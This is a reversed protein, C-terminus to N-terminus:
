SSLRRSEIWYRHIITSFFHFIHIGIIAIVSENSLITNVLIGGIKKYKFDIIGYIDNPWKIFVPFKESKFICKIAKVICIAIFHQLLILNSSELGFSIKMSIQLNESFSRWGNSGRGKGKVQNDAIAISWDTLLHKLKENFKLLFTQTSDITQAYFINPFCKLKKFLDLSNFTNIFTEYNFSNTEIPSVKQLHKEQSISDIIYGDFSYQYKEKTENLQHGYLNINFSESSEIPNLDFRLSELIKQINIKTKNEQEKIIVFFKGKGHPIILHDKQNSEMIYNDLNLNVLQFITLFETLQLSNEILLILFGGIYFVYFALNQRLKRDYDKLLDANVILCKCNGYWFSDKLTQLSINRVGIENKLTENLSSKGIICQDLILIDMLLLFTLGPIEEREKKRKLYRFM